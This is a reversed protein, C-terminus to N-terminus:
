GKAEQTDSQPGVETTRDVNGFMPDPVGRRIESRKVVIGVDIKGPDKGVLNLLDGIDITGPDDDSHLHETQRDLNGGDPM